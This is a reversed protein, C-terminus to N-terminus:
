DRAISKSRLRSFLLSRCNIRSQQYTEGASFRFAGAVLAEADAPPFRNNSEKAQHACADVKCSDKRLL